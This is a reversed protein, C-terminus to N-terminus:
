KFRDGGEAFAEGSILPKGGFMSRQSWVHWSPGFSAGFVDPDNPKWSAGGSWHNSLGAASRGLSYPDVFEARRHGLFFQQTAAGLGNTDPSSQKTKRNQMSSPGGNENEEIAEEGTGDM